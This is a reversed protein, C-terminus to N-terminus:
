RVVVGLEIRYGDDVDIKMTGKYKEVVQKVNQLGCGHLKNDQKVTVPLGREMKLPSEIANTQTIFLMNKVKNIQLQITPKNNELRKVAEVANSIINSFIICLDIDEIGCAEDLMGSWQLEISPETENSIHYNLIANVVSNGTHIYEENPIGMSLKELYNRASNLDERDIYNRLVLLLNKYDHKFKSIEKNHREAAMYYEKQQEVYSALIRKELELERKVRSLVMFVSSLVIMVVAEFVCVVFAVNKMQYTLGDKLFLQSMGVVMGSSIVGFLLLIKQYLSLVEIYQKMSRGSKKCLMSLVTWVGIGAINIFLIEEIRFYESVHIRVQDPILIFLLIDVICILYLACIMYFINKHIKGKMFFLIFIGAAVLEMVFSDGGQMLSYVLEGGFVLTGVVLSWKKKHAIGM